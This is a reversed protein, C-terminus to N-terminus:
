VALTDTFTQAPSDAGGSNTAVITYTGNGNLDGNAPGTKAVTVNPQDVHTTICSPNVQGNITACDTLDGTQTYKVTVTFSASGGNKALAGLQCTVVQPNANNATCAGAPTSSVYSEGVALTDTFTQAPSDATGNNTAVIPYTGNGNLLGTSPGSKAVTVNPSGPPTAITWSIVGCDGGTKNQDGDWALIGVKDGPVLGAPVTATLVHNFKDQGGQAQTFLPGVTVTTPDLVGNVIFTPPTTTVGNKGVLGGSSIDSEDFYTVSVKAGALVSSGAAPTGAFFSSETCTTPALTTPLLAARGAGTAAMAVSAGVVLAGGVILGLTGGRLLWRRRHVASVNSDDNIHMKGM